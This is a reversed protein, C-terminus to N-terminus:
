EVVASEHLGDDPHSQCVLHFESCQGCEEVKHQSAFADWHRRQNPSLIGTGSCVPCTSDLAALIASRIFESRNPVQRLEAMLSADAKFTIIDRKKQSM